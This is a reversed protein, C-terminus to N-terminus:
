GECEALTRRAAELHPSRLATFIEVAHRAHPLAEPKRGQRTLAKALRNCNMAILEKRGINETLTLVERTLAEAGLWDERALAVEALNGTIAAVGERFDTALAIRLAERYDREAADLDGSLHEAKALTNLGIVVDNSELSFTRDLDTAERFAAIARPYDGALQHGQGRLRIAVAWERADAKAERWHAEARDACARVDTAQERLYHVTGAYYARWGAKRYDKAAVAKVEADRSLALWEDWRGTFNLFYQMASCVTQLRDNPGALFRPLAAAVMPWADNLVPFNDYKSYGNEVVLAYAREELRDGTEAVVEPKRRRLFDAVL